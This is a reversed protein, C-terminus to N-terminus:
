EVGQHCLPGCFRTPMLSHDASTLCSVINLNFRGEDQPYQSQIISQFMAHCQMPEPKRKWRRSPRKRRHYTFGGEALVMLVMCGVAVTGRTLWECECFGRQEQWVRLMQRNVVRSVGELLESRHRDHTISESSARLRQVRPM